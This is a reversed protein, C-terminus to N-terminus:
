CVSGIQEFTRLSQPQYGWPSHSERSNNRLQLPCPSAELSVQNEKRRSGLKGEVQKPVLLTFSTRELDFIPTWDHIVNRPYSFASGKSKQYFFMTPPPISELFIPSLSFIIKACFKTHNKSCMDKSRLCKGHGKCLARVSSSNEYCTYNSSLDSQRM